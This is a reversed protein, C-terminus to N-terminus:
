ANQKWGGPKYTDSCCRVANLSSQVEVVKSSSGCTPECHTAGCVVVAHSSTPPTTVSATPSVSITPSSTPPATTFQSTWVYKADFGCGTSRTCEAEIEAETCLRAGQSACKEYASLWTEAPYCTGDVESEGWVDCGANQKWGGPKYTDSCCRVANLSSQVEVVKSSSGCTPEGHTAGCVVVAHSSTPPTTVSATPSSTPTSTPSSTPSATPDLPACSPNGFTKTEVSGFEGGSAKEVNDFYVKYSGSGYSCCLGDGYSDNITFEYYVANPNAPACVEDEYLTGPASYPGGSLLQEGSCGNKLTWSTEAPYNDTTISVKLAGNMCPTPSATPPGPTPSTTPSVNGVYLLKNPAM